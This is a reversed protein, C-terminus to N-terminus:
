RVDAGTVGGLQGLAVVPGGDGPVHLLVQHAYTLTGSSSIGGGALFAQQPSGGPWTVQRGSAVRYTDRRELTALVLSGGDRTRLAVDVAGARWVQRFRVGALRRNAEATSWMQELFADAVVQQAEPADRGALAAAYVDAAEQPSPGTGSPRDARAVVVTGQEGEVPEPLRADRTTEPAAVLKWPEAARERRWVQVRVRDRAPDDVPMLFWLPYASRLPAHVALMRLDGDRQESRRRLQQAVEFTGTDIDLMTGAEVAALPKPDLAKSAVSLVEEYQALVRRADAPNAAVKALSQDGKPRPVTCGSVVLAAALLLLAARRM